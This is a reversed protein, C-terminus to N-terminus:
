AGQRAFTPRCQSRRPTRRVAASLETQWPLRLPRPNPSSANRLQVIEQPNVVLIQVDTVATVSAVIQHWRPHSKGFYDGPELGVTIGDDTTLLASGSALVYLNREEATLPSLKKGAPCHVKVVGRTVFDELVDHACTALVPVASLFDSYKIRDAWTYV